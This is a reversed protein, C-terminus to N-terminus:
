VEDVVIHLEGARLPRLLERVGEEAVILRRLCSPVDEVADDLRFRREHLGRARVAVGATDRPFLHGLVALGRLLQLVDNEPRVANELLRPPVYFPLTPGDLSCRVAGLAERGLLQLEELLPLTEEVSVQRKPLRDSLPILRELLQDLALLLITLT